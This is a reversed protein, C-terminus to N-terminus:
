AAVETSISVTGLVPVRYPDAAIVVPSRDVVEIINEGYGAGALLGAPIQGGILSRLHGANTVREVAEAQLVEPAPGVSPVKILLDVDYVAQTARLIAVSCAEPMRNVHRVSASVAELEADLALAGDEGCIVVDADGRRGHILHGNVRAHGMDPWATYADFLYRGASGSAPADFSLLYRRLLQADTEMLAPADATAPRVVLRMLNRSAVVNDLDAGQATTALLSKIADNVRGRDLLRIYSWARGVIMAPDTAQDEMEYPPLSPDEARAEDWFALFRTKYGDLLADFDLAELVAPVPVRSLDIATPAFSAM